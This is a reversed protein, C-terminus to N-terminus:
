YSLHRQYQKQLELLDGDDVDIYRDALSISNPIVRDHPLVEEWKYQSIDIPLNIWEHKELQDITCRWEPEPHLLREIVNFLERSVDFPPNLIAQITEEIDYFPNEGYVLTYLTVGLAWMELEPGRYKNGMLVEPSCYELTGCFTSFLKEPILYASSGFDIIKVEFQENLIMNEDKIDRHVINQRHLYAVGAVVQRFIYSALPEDLNPRKDIFEFLDMGSGHKKMIMQFFIDNEFFEVVSVINRHDLKMLLSLEMPVRGYDTDEVWNEKLIKHKRIFKVVVMEDDSKRTAMKVFGFAGKGICITTEYKENYQGRGPDQEEDIDSMDNAKAAATLAEGFSRHSQSANFTSNFSSAFTLNSIHRGGEGPDSPDRSLWICYLTNGDDLSIKKISFLIGIYSGDKHRGQGIFSGEPISSTMSVTSAFRANKHSPTSTVHFSDVDDIETNINCNNVNDDAFSVRSQARELPPPASTTAAEPQDATVVDQHTTRLSKDNAIVDPEQLSKKQTDEVAAHGRPTVERATLVQSHEDSFDVDADAPPEINLAEMKNHQEVLSKSLPSIIITSPANLLEATSSLTRNRCTEDTNNMSTKSEDSNRSSLRRERPGFSNRKESGVLNFVDDKDLLHLDGTSSCPSISGPISHINVEMSTISGPPTAGQSIKRDSMPSGLPSVSPPTRLLDATCASEPRNFSARDVSLDNIKQAERLLDTTSPREPQGSLRLQNLAQSINDTGSKDFPGDDDDQRSQRSHARSSTPHFVVGGGPDDDDFPPLPMSSDDIIDLHDFFEPILNTIHKGVLEHKPFGFLMLSFNHNVSHITGNDLVSLMGSINALVWITAQYCQSAGSSSLGTNSTETFNPFTNSQSTSMPTGYNVAMSANCSTSGSTSSTLEQSNLASQPKAAEVVDPLPLQMTPIPKLLASLPFTSGDKTRGTLRQKRIEKPLKCDADPLIFSPILQKINMGILDSDSSYAHIYALQSDASLICGSADITAVASEKDVPEMVVLCRPDADNTIKKIWVSVPLILGNCDIADMVKGSLMVVKGSTEMHEEVLTTQRENLPANLLDSLKMGILDDTTFGFLESSMRNAILIETSRAKITLIAKNPNYVTTPFTMGIQGGGIFNYFSWSQGMSQSLDPAPSPAFSGKSHGPAYSFSHLGDAKFNELTIGIDEKRPVDKHLRSKETVPFSQNLELSSHLKKDVGLEAAREKKGNRIRDLPSPYSPTGFQEWEKLSGGFSKSFIHAGGSRGMSASLQSSATPYTCPKIPSGFDWSTQRKLEEAM